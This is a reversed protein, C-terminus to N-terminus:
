HHCPKPQLAPILQRLWLFPDPRSLLLEVASLQHKHLLPASNLNQIVLTWSTQGSRFTGMGM